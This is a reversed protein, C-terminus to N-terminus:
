RGTWVKVFVEKIRKNKFDDDYTDYNYNFARYHKHINGFLSKYKNLIRYEQTFIAGFLRELSCRDKKTKVVDVLRSLNYKNDINELFNLDILCQVGFCGYFKNTNNFGMNPHNDGIIKKSVSGNNTLNTSLKLINQLNEKDYDFHWLPLIKTKIREFPYRSHIFVSDHIIVARPFWKYRCYYIYPLLEGRGPYESRIVEINSYNFDSYVFKLDSNDDIIVIKKQPYHIRILKVCQNWYRNTKESNVNRLVIFGYEM